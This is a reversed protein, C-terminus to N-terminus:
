VTQCLLTFNALTDANEEPNLMSTFYQVSSRVCCVTIFWICSHGFVTQTMRMLSCTGFTNQHGCVACGIRLSVYRANYWTTSVLDLKLVFCPMKHTPSKCVSQCVQVVESQQMWSWCSRARTLWSTRTRLGSIRKSLCSTRGRVCTCTNKKMRITSNCFNGLM